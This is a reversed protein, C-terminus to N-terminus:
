RVTYAGDVVFSHGTMFSAEESCLFLVSHAIEDPTGMRGAPTSAAANQKAQQDRDWLRDFMDTDIMGPCIANIRLNSRVYELAATKTLGLVAHKSAIYAALNPFGVLGGMSANNVIVGGGVNLMERIEHQMSLFVGRVNISMIADFNELSHEAFPAPTGEIGANNFAIDIKGYTTIIKHILAEIASPEAIDTQAFLAEGGAATIASAVALSETTRRSALVVRAGEKAFAIATARGIGSSAGTILVVKDLFKM